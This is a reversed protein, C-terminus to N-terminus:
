RVRSRTAVSENGIARTHCRLSTRSDYTGLDAHTFYWLDRTHCESSLSQNDVVGPRPKVTEGHALWWEALVSGIAGHSRYILAADFARLGNQLALEVQRYAREPRMGIFRDEKDDPGEKLVLHATGLQLRPM